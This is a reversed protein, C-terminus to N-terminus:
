GPYDGHVPIAKLHENMVYMVGGHGHDTGGAGNEQVRRGFESMAVVTVRGIENLMDDHFARLNSAFETVLGPFIGVGQHITVGQTIHTDFNGLDICAVELGADAKILAATQKLARGFDTETYAAGNAPIYEDVKIKGVIDLTNLTAAAANDLPASSNGYMASLVSMVSGADEEGVALHYDAISSLSTASVYGRLSTQLTDDWGVARLPTDGPTSTVTLHRGLWGTNAGAEGDTGAEVMDMAEFHSRSVHPAGVAHVATLHGGTFLEHLAGMDPNLGFFDDLQLVREPSNADPRPIALTPRARYYDDDGFPVIMNLADAGGRLFICVIVDKPTGEQAFAVRPMWSPWVQQLSAFTAFAASAKLFDRRSIWGTETRKVLPM